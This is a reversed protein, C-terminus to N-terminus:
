KKDRTIRSRRKEGKYAQHASRKYIQSRPKILKNSRFNIDSSYHVEKDFRRVYNGKKRERMVFKKADTKNKFKRILKLEKKTRKEASYKASARANSKNREKKHQRTNGAL